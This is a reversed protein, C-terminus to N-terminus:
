SSLHAPCKIGTDGRLLSVSLEPIQPQRWGLLADDPGWVRISEILSCQSTGGESVPESVMTNRPAAMPLRLGPVSPTPVQSLAQCTPVASASCAACPVNGVSLKGPNQSKALFGMKTKLHEQGQSKAGVGGKGAKMEGEGKGIKWNKLM